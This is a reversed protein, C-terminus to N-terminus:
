KAATTLEVAGTAPNLRQIRNGNFDAIWLGEATIAISGNDNHETAVAMRQTANTRGDIRIIGGDVGVWLDTGNTTLPITGSVSGTLDIVATPAIARPTSPPPPGVSSAPRLAFFVIGAALVAVIAAGALRVLPNMTPTRWPIGLDREQSTTEIRHLAADVARDPARTPGAELWSRAARELSRDDTM